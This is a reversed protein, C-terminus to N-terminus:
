GGIIKRNLKSENRGEYQALHGADKKEKRAYRM